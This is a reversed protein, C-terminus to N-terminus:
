VGFRSGCVLCAKCVGTRVLSSSGCSPCVEGEVDFTEPKPKHSEAKKYAWTIKEKIESNTLLPNKQGLESILIENSLMVDLSYETTNYIM